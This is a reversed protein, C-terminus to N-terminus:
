SRHNGGHSDSKVVTDLWPRSDTELERSWETRTRVAYIIEREFPMMHDTITSAEAETLGLSRRIGDRVVERVDIHRSMWLWSGEELVDLCEMAEEHNGYALVMSASRIARRSILLTRRYHDLPADFPSDSLPSETPEMTTYPEMLLEASNRVHSAAGKKTLSGPRQRYVASRLSSPVFYFGVRLLRQWLDWDEAGSLMSEDFGGVGVAADLKFLPALVPFPCDDSGNIFDIFPLPSRWTESPGLDDSSTIESGIRVGCFSGVVNADDLQELVAELRDLLSDMHLLDDADLFTIFRGTAARIGSNRAASPGLNSGHRILKFRDDKEVMKSILGVSDDSSADDVVLCEWDTLSQQRVSELCDGVFREENYCAVIVSVEPGRPAPRVALDNPAAENSLQDLRHPFDLSQCTTLLTRVAIDVAPPYSESAGDLSEERPASPAKPVSHMRTHRVLARVDNQLDRQRFSTVALVLGTSILAAGAALWRLKDVYIAVAASLVAATILAGRRSFGFSALQILRQVTRSM